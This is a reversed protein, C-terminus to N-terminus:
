SGKLAMVGLLYVEMERREDAEDVMGNLAGSYKTEAKGKKGGGAPPSDLKYMKKVKALDTISALVEDSFPISDGEVNRSLHEQVASATISDNTAVKIALVSTTTDTIGFRRFSEAI